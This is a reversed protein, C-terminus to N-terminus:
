LAGVRKLATILINPDTYAIINIIDVLGERTLYASDVSEDGQIEYVGDDMKQITADTM